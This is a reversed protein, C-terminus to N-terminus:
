VFEVGFEAATEPLSYRTASGLGFPETVTLPRDEFQEDQSVLTLAVRDGLLTQLAILAEPGAV